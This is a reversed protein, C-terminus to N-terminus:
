PPVFPRGSEGRGARWITNTMVGAAVVDWLKGCVGPQRWARARGKWGLKEGSERQRKTQGHLCGEFSLRPGDM